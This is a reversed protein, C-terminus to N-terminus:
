SNSVEESTQLLSKMDIVAVVAPENTTHAPPWAAAVLEADYDATADATVDVRSSSYILDSSNVIATIGNAV